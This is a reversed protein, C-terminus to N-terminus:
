TLVRPLVELCRSRLSTLTQEVSLSNLRAFLQFISDNKIISILLRYFEKTDCEDPDSYKKPLFFPAVNKFGKNKIYLVTEMTNEVADNDYCIFVLSPRKNMIKNFQIDSMNKGLTSISGIRLSDFIGETVIIVENNKIEDIGFLIEEKGVGCNKNPNSSKINIFDYVCRTQYYILKGNEYIPFMISEKDATGFKISEPKYGRKIIYDWGKPFDIRSKVEIYNHPMSFESSNHINFNYNIIKKVSQKNDFSLGLLNVHGNNKCSFCKFVQKRVNIWMSKTKCKNCRVKYEDGSSSYVKGCKKEITKEYFDIM